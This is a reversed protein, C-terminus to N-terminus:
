FSMRASVKFSRGPLPVFDKTFSAHRRGEEDFINKVQALLAVNEDTLPKWSVSANVFLFDDTPTELPAVDDQEATYAFEVRGGYSETEAELAGFLSLPPIRPLNTGDDLEASVYDARLDAFVDIDNQEYLVIRAEAEAGYYTADHHVFQFVPLEDEELETQSLYIYDSFWSAYAAVSLTIPGATGRSFLEVGWAKETDLDPNGIEFQQTAIHPGNSYLEEGSPAREARSGTMGIRANPVPRYVLSAAGSVTDFDRTTALSPAETDTHEYRGGLEVTLPGDGLEQLTFLAYQDTRNPAVFAEAGVAEFDRYFVQGGFSGRWFDTEAQTFLLRGEFGEVDFVTGTEDGEFETHTYDSYGLRFDVRDVFGALFLGGRLDARTQELGISVAEEGHEEDDHEEDEDEHEEEGEEEEEHHHGAGPRSPVGYDTEYRSLSFGLSNDDDGIFVGGGFSTAETFSNPLIHEQNAAERLEEAEEVHGESEEEAADALVEDRLDQSLVYGPVELDGAERYSADFHVAVLDTLRLDVSGGLSYSDDVTAASALGDVHVHEDPIGRPIRKDILNVAGGIAQSGYLLVAPGRLVEIRETTLPDLSVAHDASTNSADLNGLGDTLVKVREGSFGRLIPRSAGPSFSTASVGPLDALIEGVQGDMNRQLEEDQVISTGALLDLEGVGPGTIVITSPTRHFDDQGVDDAPGTQAASTQAAVPAALLVASLLLLSKTM